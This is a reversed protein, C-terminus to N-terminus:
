STVMRKRIQNVTVRLLISLIGVVPILKYLFAALPSVNPYISQVLNGAKLFEPISAQDTLRMYVFYIVIPVAIVSFKNPIFASVAVAAGAFLASSLSYHVAITLLYMGAWNNELLATYSDGSSIEKFLPLFMSLILTFVAISIGVCLFGAIISSIFKSAAYKKAGTRIVWFPSAKDELDSAFSMGYPLIPAICLIFLTSGSGTLAHGLIYIVDSTNAIFGSSSIFMVFIIFIISIIFNLSLLARSLDAKLLAIFVKM